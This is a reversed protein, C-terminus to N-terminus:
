RQPASTRSATPRTRLAYRTRGRPKYVALVTAALLLMLALVTHILVSPNRLLGLDTDPAAALGALYGLTETYMLLVVIAGVNILLKFIVWYHRFLGWTTGLSQVLGTFLSAVALPILTYWAAPEMVLYVARVTQDDQSTLGIVALALFALVAGLWGVSSTIHTTLVLKRLPPAM